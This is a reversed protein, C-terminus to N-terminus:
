PEGIQPDDEPFPREDPLEDEPDGQTPPADALVAIRVPAATISTLAELQSDMAKLNGLAIESEGPAIARFTVRALVGNGRVGDIRGLRSAGVALTGEEPSDTLLTAEGSGGLFDGQRVNEVALIAPDFVLDLPLHSVPSEAEVRVLVQVTDGPALESQTPSLEVRVGRGPPEGTAPASHSDTASTLLTAGSEMAPVPMQPISSDDLLSEEINNLRNKQEEEQQQRNDQFFSGPTSTPALDTGPIEEGEKDEDDAGGEQLGRPLRQLRRRLLDQVRERDDSGDFPGEVESEVRPSGGRFTIKSETGVWIPLLDDDTINPTRIIHPTMTLIVDTRGNSTNSNSFLRGLLPIDSLGPIGSETLIDESRILGALFNTEGDKLRIVSEITRTGIVPQRQGGSAEVFRAINSVEITVKLTIEKNHHVRPEVEIKIGVDTYQFTTLPVINGGQNNGTNFTTTPIPVREGILLRAKEGETIRLQPKALIEAQSNSKMFNYMFDPITFAWNNGNLDDFDSLRLPVNEGGLDLSQSISNSSLTLGLDRLKTTNVQLLEVNVVVESKAKDNSEIIKEAVKVKDATDRLIIANLQENTAIKKADVLSRLMTMVQKIDANSLFFTQIVLDEYNRRNQPTDAVVIITHEDQVKYFHGAARMVVELAGQATVEKLTISLEQDKLNPDFLVNIGFAKGLARYIDKISTPPGFDLDIPETSRPNLVPPQPRTGSNRRKMEELTEGPERQEEEAKIEERVRELEAQAYQNTPDLQVAQQYEVMARRRVGAEHYQKGKKFHEQSANIKSRLLASRYALNEPESAVADMYHLVAEDWDQKSSAIEAKRFSQYSSCGALTGVLLLLALLQGGTQNQTRSTRRM